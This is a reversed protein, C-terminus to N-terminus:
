SPTWHTPSLAPTRSVGPRGRELGGLTPFPETDTVRKASARVAQTGRSTQFPLLGIERGGGQTASGRNGQATGRPENASRCWQNTANLAHMPSRGTGLPWESRNSSNREIHMRRLGVPLRRPDDVHGTAM